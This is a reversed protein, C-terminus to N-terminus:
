HIDARMVVTRVSWTLIAHQSWQFHHVHGRNGAVVTTRYVLKPNGDAAIDGHRVTRQMPEETTTRNRRAPGPEDNRHRDTRVAFHPQDFDTGRVVEGPFRRGLLLANPGEDRGNRQRRRRNGSCTNCTGGASHQNTPETDLTSRGLNQPPRQATGM